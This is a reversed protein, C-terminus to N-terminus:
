GPRLLARRGHRRAQVAVVVEVAGLVIAIIGSLLVLVQLSLGPWVLFLVGAAISAIGVGILWGRARGHVLVGLLVGAFGSLLWALGILASLTAVGLATDRVCTVGIAVLVVGVVGDVMRHMLNDGEAKRFVAILRTVGTVLLWLGVLLGLLRLTEGPWALVAVGFLATVVGVALLQWTPVAMPERRATGARPHGIVSM